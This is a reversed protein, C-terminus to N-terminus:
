NGIKSAVEFGMLDAGLPQIEFNSGSNSAGPDTNELASYILATRCVQFRIFCKEQFHSTRNQRFIKNRAVHPVDLVKQTQFWFGELLNPFHFMLVNSTVIKVEGGACM